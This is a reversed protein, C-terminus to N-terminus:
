SLSRPAALKGIPYTKRVLPTIGSKTIRHGLWECENKAFQCKGINIGYKKEDLKALINEVLAIHENKSGISIALIDDIFAHECLFESLIADMLRQFKAPMSTLVYFGTKFRHSGTYRGGVLYFNCHKSSTESLPLQGYAYTLDMTSFFADAQKRESITQGVINMLKEINPM